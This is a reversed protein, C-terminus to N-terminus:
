QYVIVPYGKEVNEFIIRAEKTPTNICGHSGSTLYIQGGFEDRFHGADHIGVNGNFPLWYEVPQKYDEGELIKGKIKADIAWVGGAPTANGMNPNGTVVSTNVLEVGDKYFWMRQQSISIEIYTDGIDNEAREIGKYSYVPELVTREANQLAETLQEVTKRRDICWGYDGETLEIYSGDHKRFIRSLGFTDTDYAMETVWEEVKGVDLEYGGKENKTILSRIVAKDATRKRDKFTYVVEATLMQNLKNVQAKLTEDDKTIQPEVYLGEELCDIRTETNQIKRLLCQLAKEMSLQTGRVEQQIEYGEPTEIISADETVVIDERSFCQMRGICGKVQKANYCVPFAIKYEKRGFFGQVFPLGKQEKLIEELKKEAGGFYIELDCIKMKEVTDDKQIWLIEGYELYQQLDKLVKETTKGSCSISNITTGPYFRNQFYRSIGLIILVGGLIGMGAILIRKKQRFISQYGIM